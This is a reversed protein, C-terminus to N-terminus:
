VVEEQHSNFCSFTDFECPSSIYVMDKDQRAFPSEEPVDFQFSQLEPISDLQSLLLSDAHCVHQQEVDDFKTHQDWTFCELESVNDRIDFSIGEGQIFVEYEVDDSELIPSFWCVDYDCTNIDMEDVCIEPKHSM